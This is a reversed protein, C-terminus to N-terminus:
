INCELLRVSTRCRRRLIAIDARLRRNRPHDVAAEKLLSLAGAATVPGDHVLALSLGEFHKVLCALKAPVAARLEPHPYLLLKAAGGCNGVMEHAEPDNARHKIIIAACTMYCELVTTVVGLQWSTKVVGQDHSLYKMAYSGKMNMGEEPTASPVLEFLSNNCHGQMALAMYMAYLGGHDGCGIQLLEDLLIKNKCLGDHLEWGLADFWAITPTMAKTLALSVKGDVGEKFRVRLSSSCLCSLSGLIKKQRSLKQPETLMPSYATTRLSVGVVSVRRQHSYRYKVPSVDPRSMITIAHGAKLYVMLQLTRCLIQFDEHLLIFSGSPIAKEVDTTEKSPTIAYRQSIFSLLDEYSSLYCLKCNSEPGTHIIHTAVAEAPREGHQFYIDVQHHEFKEHDQETVIGVGALTRFMDFQHWLYTVAVFTNASYLYAKAEVGIRKNVRLIAKEWAYGFAPFDKDTIPVKLNRGLLLYSFIEHKIELPMTELTPKLKYVVPESSM